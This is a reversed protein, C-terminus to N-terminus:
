LHRGNFFQIKLFVRGGQESFFVIEPMSFEKIIELFNLFRGVDFLREM